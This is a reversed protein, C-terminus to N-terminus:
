AISGKIFDVILNAVSVEAFSNKVTDTSVIRNVGASILRQISGPLFLGHTFIAIVEGNFYKRLLRVVRAVTGGTSIIDDFIIATKNERSLRDLENVNVPELSIIKGSRLDRVKRFATYPVNVLRALESVVSVRGEDPAILFFDGTFNRELYERWVPLSSINVFRSGYSSFVDLSHVDITVVLDGGASFLSDVFVRASICEGSLFRKDQRSYPLYPYVIIVRRAGLDRLTSTLFVGRLFCDSQRFPMCGMIVVVTSGVVDGLVRVYFEGDPFLKFDLPLLDFGGLTVVRSGLEGYFPDVIVRM